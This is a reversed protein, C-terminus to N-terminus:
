SALAPLRTTKRPLNPRRTCSIKDFGCCYFLLWIVPFRSLFYPSPSIIRARAMYILGPCPLGTLETNVATRSPQCNENQSARFQYVVVRLPKPNRIEIRDSWPSRCSIRDLSRKSGLGVVAVRKGSRIRIYVVIYCGTKSDCRVLRM